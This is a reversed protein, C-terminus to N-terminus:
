KLSGVNQPSVDTPSRRSLREDPPKPEDYPFEKEYVRRRQADKAQQEATRVPIVVNGASAVDSAMLFAPDTRLQVLADAMPQGCGLASVQLLENLGSSSSFRIEEYLAIPLQINGKFRRDPGGNKNVHKWTQGVVKADTPVRESEIFRFPSVEIKLDQYRVAGVGDPSFVLM